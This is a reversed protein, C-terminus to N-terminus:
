RAPGAPLSDRLALAAEYTRRATPHGAAVLGDVHAEVAPAAERQWRELESPSLAGMVHGDALAVARGPAEWAQWWAPFRRALAAGSCLAIADQQSPALGQWRSGNMVFYLPSVYLKTDTHHRFIDGTGTYALVDWAMVAGDIRGEAAAAAIHPPTLPVPEAGLLRLAAEMPGAPCRLRLGELQERRTVPADRTHLVGGSDAHLVLVKFGEFEPALHTPLLANLIQTGQGSSAAMFPLNMLTTLPFRGEPLGAPSHAVDVAGSLVQAYQNELRGLDSAGSHITLALTGGSADEVARAWPAIFDAHSGHDEPMYHSVHLTTRVPDSRPVPPVHSRGSPCPTAVRRGPAARWSAASM